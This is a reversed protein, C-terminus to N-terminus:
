GASVDFAIDRCAIVHTQTVTANQAPNHGKPGNQPRKMTLVVRSGRTRTSPISGTVEPMFRRYNVVAGCLVTSMATDIRVCVKIGGAWLYWDVLDM